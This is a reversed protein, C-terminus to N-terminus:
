QNLRAPRATSFAAMLRRAAVWSNIVALLDDINVTGSTRAAEM